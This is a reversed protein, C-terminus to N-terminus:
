AGIRALAGCRRPCVASHDIPRRHSMMKFHNQHEDSFFVNERGGLVMQRIVSDHGCHLKPLLEWGVPGTELDAELSPATQVVKVWYPTPEHIAASRYM